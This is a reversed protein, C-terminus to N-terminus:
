ADGAVVIGIGIMAALGILQIRRYTALDDRTTPAEFHNPDPMPAFRGGWRLGATEGLAGVKAEIGPAQRVLDYAFGIEHKSKGAAAAPTTRNPDSALAAQQSRSRLGSLFVFPLGARLAADRHRLAIPRLLPDLGNVIEVESATLAPTSM